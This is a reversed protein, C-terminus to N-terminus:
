IAGCAAHPDDANIVAVGDAALGQSFRARPARWPKWASGSRGSPGRQANNVLAVTPGAIRTLYAIEGAHNMGMEIVAYRHDDRLKLLTLPLGIDNNLNGSPPWCPM